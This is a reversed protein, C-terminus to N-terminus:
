RDELTINVNVSGEVAGLPLLVLLDDFPRPAISRGGVHAERVVKGAPPKLSLTAGPVANELGVSWTGGSISQQAIEMKERALWWDVVERPSVFVVGDLSSAYTVAQKMADAYDVKDDAFVGYGVDPPDAFVHILGGRRYERDVVEEFVALYADPSATRFRVTEGLSNYSCFGNPFEPCTPDYSIPVELFRFNRDEEPWCKFHVEGDDVGTWPERSPHFPFGSTLTYNSGVSSEQLYGLEDLVQFTLLSKELQFHPLRFIGQDDQGLLRLFAENCKGIQHRVEDSGLEAWPQEDWYSYPHSYSHNYYHRHSPPFCAPFEELNRASVYIGYKDFSVEALTDIAPIVYRACEPEVGPPHDVDGDIVLPSRVGDRWYWISAVGGKLAFLLSRVMLERLVYSNDYSFHQALSPVFWVVRGGRGEKLVLADSLVQHSEDSTVFHAVSRADDARVAYQKGRLPVVTGNASYPTRTVSHAGSLRLFASELYDGGSGARGVASIGAVVALGNRDRPRFRGSPGRCSGSDGSILLGVGARAAAKLADIEEDDLWAVRPLILLAYRQASTALEEESLSAFPIKASGLTVAWVAHEYLASQDGVSSGRAPRV